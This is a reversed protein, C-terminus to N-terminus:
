TVVVFLVLRVALNKGELDKKAKAENKRAQEVEGGIDRVKRQLEEM